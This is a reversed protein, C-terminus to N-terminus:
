FLKLENQPSHGIEYHRHTKQACGNSQFLIINEVIEVKSDWGGDWNLRRLCSLTRNFTWM